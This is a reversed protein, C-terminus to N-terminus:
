ALGLAIRDEDSLLVAVPVESLKRLGEARTPAQVVVTFQWATM